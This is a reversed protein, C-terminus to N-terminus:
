HVTSELQEALHQALQRGLPTLATKLLTPFASQLMGVIRQVESKAYERISPEGTQCIFQWYRLLDSFVFVAHFLGSPPRLDDRWPSRVLPADVAVIPASAQLLYLKQHRHEHILSDALDYPTIWGSGQRISIYLAGPVSNDSFSVAKDPHASPDRMLQIEPSLWCLEDYTARDWAIIIDLARWVLKSAQELISDPEFIIRGEFPLRLWPDLRHLRPATPLGNRAWQCIELAYEPQSGITESAISKTTIGKATQNTVTTWLVVSPQIALAAQISRNAMRLLAIQDAIEPVDKAALILAEQFLPLAKDAWAERLKEIFRRGEAPRDFRHLDDESFDLLKSPGSAAVFVNGLENHVRKKAHSVLALMERCYVTPHNFGDIDYRHPVSGGGCIKVIECERCTASLGDERLLRRHAEIKPSAAAESVTSNWLNLGTKTGGPLTIKLVDLDHYSGDTEITLMSVDGFGFGDTQSPMGAIGNLISDFTRVPLESYNDFWLDFAMILWRVYLDRDQDRGHPPKLYNSDPLLFDLRPPKLTKFFDFLKDPMVSPDIVAILGAFVQPYSQLRHIADLTKQFTSAGLHDLRHLDHAVAPGDISISVGIDEKVFAELITESLLLGNTQLSADVKTTAPVAQRIWRTTEVIRDCGALLPEGGHFVILLESLNASEAYEGIRKALQRRTVETMLGPQERWSQDAHEYM